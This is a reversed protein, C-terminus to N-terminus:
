SKLANWKFNLSLGFFFQTEGLHGLRKLSTVAQTLNRKAIDLSKIDRTIEVVMKETNDAKKSIQKINQILTSITKKSEELEMKGQKM